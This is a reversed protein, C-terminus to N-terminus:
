RRQSEKGLCEVYFERERVKGNNIDKEWKIKRWLM